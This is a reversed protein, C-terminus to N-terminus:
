IVHCVGYVNISAGDHTLRGGGLMTASAGVHLGLLESIVSFYFLYFNFVLFRLDAILRDVYKTAENVEDALSLVSQVDQDTYGDQVGVKTASKAPSSIMPYAQPYTDKYTRASSAASHSTM